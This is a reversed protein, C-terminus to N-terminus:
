SFCLINSDHSSGLIVVSLIIWFRSEKSIVTKDVVGCSKQNQSQCSKHPGEFRDIFFPQKNTEQKLDRLGHHRQSGNSFGQHTPTCQTPKM